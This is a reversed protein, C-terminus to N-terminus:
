IDHPENQKSIQDELSTIKDRLSRLEDSFLSAEALAANKSETFRNINAKADRIDNTSQGAIKLDKVIQDMTVYGKETMIVDTAKLGNLFNAQKGKPLSMYSGFLENFKHSDGGKYKNALDNLTEDSVNITYIENDIQDDWRKAVRNASSINDALTDKMRENSEYDYKEKLTALKEKLDTEPEANNPKAQMVIYEESSSESSKLEKELDELKSKLKNAEAEVNPKEPGKDAMRENELKSGKNLLYCGGMTLLGPIVLSGITAGAATGIFAADTKIKKDSDSLVNILKNAGLGMLGGIGAGLLVLPAVVTGAAIGVGVLTGGAAKLAIEKAGAKPKEPKAAQQTKTTQLTPMKEFTTQQKPASEVQNLQTAQVNNISGDNVKGLSM